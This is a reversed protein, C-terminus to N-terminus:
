FPFILSGGRCLNLVLKTLFYFSRLFFFGSLQLTLYDCQRLEGERDLAFSLSQESWARLYVRQSFFHVSESFCRLPHRRFFPAIYFVALLM